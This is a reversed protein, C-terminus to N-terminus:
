RARRIANGFLLGAQIFFVSIGTVLLLKPLTLVDNQGHWFDGKALEDIKLFFPWHKGGGAFFWTNAMDSLLFEAFVWQTPLFVLLFAPGGALAVYRSPIRWQRQYLFVLDLALSPFILLLPFPPPLFHDLRNYVPAALPKAPFLPLLWVMAALILTYCLVARTSGFARDQVRHFLALTFPYLACSWQYFSASHQRNPYTSVLTVVTIVSLLAGGSLAEAFPHRTCSALWAGFLITFFAAAKLMQPPHWIGASLGYASQWWQDFLFGIVYALVAWLSLWGHLPASFPGLQVGDHSGHLSNRWLVWLAALGSLALGLYTALHPPAWTQELGVSSEWSFDWVLSLPICVAGPLLFWYERSSPWCQESAAHPSTAASDASPISSM